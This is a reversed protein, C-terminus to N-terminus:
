FAHRRTYYLKKVAKEAITAALLDEELNTNNPYIAGPSTNDDTEYNRPLRPKPDYSTAPSTTKAISCATAVKASEAVMGRGNNAATSRGYRQCREAAKTIAVTNVTVVNATRGHGYRSPTGHRRSQSATVANAMKTHGHEGHCHEGRSTRPTTHEGKGGPAKRTDHSGHQWKWRQQHTLKSILHWLHEENNPIYWIQYTYDIYYILKLYTLHM